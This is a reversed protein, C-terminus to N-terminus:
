NRKIMIIKKIIQTTKEQILLVNRGITIYVKNTNIYMVVYAPLYTILPTKPFKQYTDVNNNHKATIIHKNYDKKSNSYYECKECIFKPIKQPIKTLLM